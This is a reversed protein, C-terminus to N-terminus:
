CWFDNLKVVVAKTKNEDLVEYKEEGGFIVNLNRSETGAKDIAAQVRPPM